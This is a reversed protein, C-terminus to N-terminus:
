DSVTLLAGSALLSDTLELLDQAAQEPEVEFEDAILDRVEALTRQGDILNWTRAATENLTYINDL